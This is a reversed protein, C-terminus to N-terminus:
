ESILAIIEYLARKYGIQDAQKYAWNPCDYGDKARATKDADKIKEELLVKMRNRLILSSKFDGRIEKSYDTDLGKTWSQKM